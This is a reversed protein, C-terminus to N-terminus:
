RLALETEGVGMAYLRVQTTSQAPCLLIAGIEPHARCYQEAADPGMVFLATSLADAQAATPALVTAQLVGEAPWGTRPDIVHGYRRGKHRFYQFSTGSTGLARNRLWVEALLRHQHLPDRIAVSWGGLAHCPRGDVGVRSGCALVSSQGAHFLYDGIGAAALRRACCDLAYGKGISGLSLRVGPRRFQVTKREPDLQVLDSGVNRRADALEERSPVRGARRSFGWVEWLPTATIDYAGQTERSIQFTLELLEFLQPEVRVPQRAAERNIRSLESTPRFLSLQEELSQVLDLAELAAQADDPYQGANFVVEFECAMAQRAVRMLYTEISQGEASGESVNSQRSPPSEDGTANSLIRGTLFDRRTSKCSM